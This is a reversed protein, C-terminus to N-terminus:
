STMGPLLVDSRGRLRYYVLGIIEHQVMAATRSGRHATDRVPWSQVAFGVARFAGMSRPMHLASTVVLWRENPTPKALNCSFLANEFTNRARRDVILRGELEPAAAMIAEEDQGPGSLIVRANPYRRALQLAEEVREAGGGLVVIGAIARRGEADRAFRNELTDFLRTVISNTLRDTLRYGHATASVLTAACVAACVFLSRSSPLRRNSM